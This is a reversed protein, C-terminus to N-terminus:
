SQTVIYIFSCFILVQREQDFSAQCYHEFDYFDDFKYFGQEEFSFKVQVNAFDVRNLDNLM